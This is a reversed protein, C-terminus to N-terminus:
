NDPTSQIEIPQCIVPLRDCINATQLIFLCYICLPNAAPAEKEGRGRAARKERAWNGEGKGKRAGAM